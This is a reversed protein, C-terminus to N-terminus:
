LRAKVHLDLDQEAPVKTSVPVSQPVKPEGADVRMARPPLDLLAEEVLALVDAACGFSLSWGAGGHGYNHVIRSPALKTESGAGLEHFRLEREVRINRQRFPRLGQALPYDPDLRAKKLDPLFEECRARMRKVIPSDLTLDLAHQNSETIGGILLIGDNRPVLFVIEGAVDASITLAQDLKPFDSGDNIVRILAGRIPYCSKDGAVESGSLGTANIIADAQFEARLSQEQDFLDGKITRTILKAGKSAVLDKLFAMCTDTDIVPALHEYADVAGYSKNIGREHIINEDHRFGRVGSAMIEIMKDRQDEDQEVPM